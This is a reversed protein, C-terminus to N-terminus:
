DANEGPKLIRYSSHIPGSKSLTGGVSCYKEESLQIAQEVDKAQLEEGWLLYEVQYEVYVKPYVDVKQNGRVRVKFESPKQRKKELISVIDMATCGSLGVLLFEMPNIGPADNLDRGVQM